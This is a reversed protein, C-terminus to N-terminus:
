FGGYWFYIQYLYYYALLFLSGHLLISFLFRNMSSDEKIILSAFIFIPFYVYSGFRWFWYMYASLIIMFSSFISLILFQDYNSIKQKLMPRRIYAYLTILYFPFGKFITTINVNTEIQGADDLFSDFEAGINPLFQYVISLFFDSVEKFFFVSLFLLAFQSVRIWKKKSGLLVIYLPILIIASEHFMLSIVLFIVSLKFNKKFLKAISIAAFAIAPAQKLLYFSYFIYTSIAMLVLAKPHAEKFENYAFFTLILTLFSVSFFLIRPDNSFIQLFESLLNLGLTWPSDWNDAFRIAYNKEIRLIRITQLLILISDL